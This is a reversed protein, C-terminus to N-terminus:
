SVLFGAPACTYLTMPHQQKFRISNAVEASCSSSAAAAASAPRKAVRQARAKACYEQYRAPARRKPAPGGGSGAGCVDDLIADLAAGAEM